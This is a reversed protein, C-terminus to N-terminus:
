LFKQAATSPIVEPCFEELFINPIIGDPNNEPLAGTHQILKSVPFRRARFAPDLVPASLLRSDYSDTM